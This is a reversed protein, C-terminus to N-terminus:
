LYRTLGGVGDLVAAAQALVEPDPPFHPNPAAYLRMGAALAARMGNSSDEVAACEAAPVGLREATQLYVQPSPKGAGAQESSLAAAVTGALGTADLFSAILRPPSSSAIGVPYRAGAARVTEVADPLLPPGGAYRQAMRGVVEEAADDPAMDVGLEDVLYRAWEPTSMGMMAATARDPWERGHEAVLDRRIQDWIHESDVLVGDLDFVVAQV